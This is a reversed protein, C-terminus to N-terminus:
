FGHKGYSKPPSFFSSFGLSIGLFFSFFITQGLSGRPLHPPPTNKWKKIEKDEGSCHSLMISEWTRRHSGGRWQFIIDQKREAAYFSAPGGKKERRGEDHPGLFFIEFPPGKEGIWWLCFAGFSRSNLPPPSLARCIHPCLADCREKTKSKLDEGQSKEGHQIALWINHFDRWLREILQGRTGPLIESVPFLTMIKKLDNGQLSRFNLSGNKEKFFEFNVGITKM